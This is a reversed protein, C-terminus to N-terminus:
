DQDPPPDSLINDEAAQVIQDASGAGREFFHMKLPAQRHAPDIWCARCVPFEAMRGTEQDRTVGFIPYQEAAAGCGSCIEM